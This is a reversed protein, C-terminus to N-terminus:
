RRGVGTVVIRGRGLRVSGRRELSELAGSVRARTAGVHTALEAHTVRIEGSPPAARSLWAVIRDELPEEMSSAKEDTLLGVLHGLHGIIRLALAPDRALLREVQAGPIVGVITDEVAVVDATHPEGAVTSLGVVDGPELWRFVITRGGRSTRQVSLRGELVVAIANSPDGWAWLLGDRAVDRCTAADALAARDAPALGGFVPSRGLHRELAARANRM